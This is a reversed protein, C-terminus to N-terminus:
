SEAESPYRFFSDVMDPMDSAVIINYLIDKLPHSSVIEKSHLAAGLTDKQKEKLHRYLGNAIVDAAMTLASDESSVNFEIGTFDGIADASAKIQTSFHREVVQKNERDYGSVRYEKKDTIGLFGAVVKEADERISKDLNDTIINLLFPKKINMDECFAMGKTIVDSLLWKHLSEYKPNNSTAIKSELGELSTKILEDNRKFHDYFGQVYIAEYVCYIKKEIFLEYIQERLSTQQEPTLDTIHFKGNHEFGSRIRELELKFLQLYEKPVLFGAAVGLEGPEKEQNDSYGKAGSEDIVMYIETM